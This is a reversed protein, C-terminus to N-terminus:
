RRSKKSRSPTNAQATKWRCERTRWDLSSKKFQSVAGRWAAIAGLAATVLFYARMEDTIHQLQGNLAPLSVMGSRHAYVSLSRRYQHFTLPWPKGVEIGERVKLPKARACDLLWMCGPAWPSGDTNLVLPFRPFTDWKITKSARLERWYKVRIGDVQHDVPICGPGPGDAVQTNRFLPLTHVTPATLVHTM